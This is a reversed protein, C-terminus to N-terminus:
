SSERLREILNELPRQLKMFRNPVGDDADAYNDLVELIAELLEITTDDVEHYRTPM